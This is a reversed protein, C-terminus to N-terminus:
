QFILAQPCPPRIPYFKLSYFNKYSYLLCVFLFSCIFVLFATYDLNLEALFTSKVLQYHLLTIIANTIMRKNEQRTLSLVITVARAHNFRSM